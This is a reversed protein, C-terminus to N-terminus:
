YRLMKFQHVREKRIGSLEVHNMFTKEIGITLSNVDAQHYKKLSKVNCLQERM